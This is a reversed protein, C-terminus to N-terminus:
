PMPHDTFFQWIVQTANLRDTTSGVMSEPLLSSGGPWTHGCGAITYFVIEAGERGPGYRVAAVGEAAPLLIPAEPCGVMRAWKLISSMVPPKPKGEGLALGRLTGPVGGNLPNLPDQDGTIYCLSVPRSPAPDESWFAGAVPAVAALRSSLEVGVRFAMSAGNSFGTAYIRRSDVPYQACIEDLMRSVFEVDDVAPQDTQFRGSGDNWTQPNRTFSSPEHPDRRTGEPFAAIFGELRAMRAWGTEFAAAQGTGGGGHFMLVLPVPREPSVSAPVCLSYTRALGAIQLSRQLLGTVQAPAPQGAVAGALLGALVFPLSRIPECRM